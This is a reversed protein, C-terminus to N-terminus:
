LGAGCGRMGHRGRPGRQEPRVGHPGTIVLCYVESPLAHQDQGGLM